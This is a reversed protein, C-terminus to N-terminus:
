SRVPSTTRRFWAAERRREPGSLYAKSGRSARHSLVGGGADRPGEGGPAAGQDRRYRRQDRVAQLPSNADVQCRSRGAFNSERLWAVFRDLYLYTLADQISRDHGGIRVPWTFAFYIEAFVSPRAPPRSAAYRLVM